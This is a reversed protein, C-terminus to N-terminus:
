WLTDMRGTHLPYLANYAREIAPLAQNDIRIDMYGAESDIYVRSMGLPSWEGAQQLGIIRYYSFDGPVQASRIAAGPFVALSRELAPQWDGTGAGTIDDLQEVMRDSYEQSMRIEGLLIEEAQ